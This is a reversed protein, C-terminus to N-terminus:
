KGHAPPPPLSAARGQRLSHGEVAKFYVRLQAASKWGCRAAISELPVDPCVLLEKVRSLRVRNIEEQVSHGVLERFRLEALRRSVSLEAFVDRPKLGDCARLRIIELAQSVAANARPLRCTSQRRVIGNAAFFRQAEGRFAGRASLCEDLLAAAQEGAATFNPRISSLTPTVHECLPEDNDIGLILVDDPVAVGLAQCTRIAETALLDNAALLGCPKPLAKLWDGFAQVFDETQAARDSEWFPRAFTQADRGSLQLAERFCREREESWFIHAFGFFAFSALGLPLLERAATRGLSVSDHGIRLADKALRMQDCVLYVVPRAGFVDSLLVGKEDMAGEVIIGDPQWFALLDEIAKRELEHEVIFITWGHAQAYRYLGDQMENWSSRFSTHFVLVTTEKRRQTKRKLRVKSKRPPM